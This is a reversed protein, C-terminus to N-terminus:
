DDRVEVNVFGIECGGTSGWKCMGCPKGYVRHGGTDVSMFYWAHPCIKPVGGFAVMASEEDYRWARTYTPDTKENVRPM